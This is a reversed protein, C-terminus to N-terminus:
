ESGPLPRAIIEAMLKNTRDPCIGHTFWVDAHRKFCGEVSDWGGCDDRTRRCWGCM